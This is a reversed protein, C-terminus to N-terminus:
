TSNCRGRHACRTESHLATPKAASMVRVEGAVASAAQIAVPVPPHVVSNSQQWSGAPAHLFPVHQEPLPPPMAPEQVSAVSQQAAFASHELLLHQMGVPSALQVCFESHQWAGAPLQTPPLHQEPLPPPMAPEQVSAVSQQAAFASHELLLHQM